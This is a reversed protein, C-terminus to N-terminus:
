RRRVGVTQTWGPQSPLRPLYTCYTTKLSCLCLRKYGRSTRGVFKIDLIFPFFVRVCVCMRFPYMIRNFMRFSTIRVDFYNIRLLYMIRNLMRFSTIRLVDFYLIYFILLKYPKVLEFCGIIRTSSRNNSLPHTLDGRPTVSKPSFNM